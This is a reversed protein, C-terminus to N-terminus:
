HFYTLIKQQLFVNRHKVHFLFSQSDKQYKEIEYDSKRLLFKGSAGITAFIYNSNLDILANISKTQNFDGELSHKQILTFANNDVPQLCSLYDKAIQIMQKFLEIAEAFNLNDGNKKHILNLMWEYEKQGMLQSDIGVKQNLIDFAPRFDNSSIVGNNLDIKKDAFVTTVYEKVNIEEIFKLSEDANVPIQAM